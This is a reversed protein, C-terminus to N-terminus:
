SKLLTRYASKQYPMPWARHLECFLRALKWYNPYGRFDCVIRFGNSDDDLPGQTITISRAGDNIARTESM